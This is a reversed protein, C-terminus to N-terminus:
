ESRAENRMLGLTEKPTRLTNARASTHREGGRRAAAAEQEAKLCAAVV